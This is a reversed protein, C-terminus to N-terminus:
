EYELMLSEFGPVLALVTFRKAGAKTAFLTRMYRTMIFM